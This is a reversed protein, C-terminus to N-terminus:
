SEPQTLLSPLNLAMKSQISLGQRLQTFLYSLLFKLLSIHSTGQNQCKQFSVCNPPFFYYKHCWLLSVQMKGYFSFAVLNGQRRSYPRFTLLFFFQAKAKDFSFCFLVLFWITKETRCHSLSCLFQYSAVSLFFLFFFVKM